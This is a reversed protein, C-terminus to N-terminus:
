YLVLLIGVASKFMSSGVSDLVNAITTATAIPIAATTGASVSVTCAASM